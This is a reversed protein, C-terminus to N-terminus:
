ALFALPNQALLVRVLTLHHLHRLLTILQTSMKPMEQKASVRSLTRTKNIQDGMKHHIVLERENITEAHCQHINSFASIISVSSAFFSLIWNKGNFRSSCIADFAGFSQHFSSVLALVRVTV